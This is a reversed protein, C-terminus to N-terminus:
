ALEEESLHDDDILRYIEKNIERTNAIYDDSMGRAKMEAFWPADNLEAGTVGYGAMLIIFSVKEKSAVIPAIVGGEGHGLMSINEIDIDQRSALYLFAGHADNALDATTSQSVSKFGLSKGVQREDYRLVAFGESNFFDALIKFPKFESVRSDRNQEGFGSVLIIAKHKKTQREPFSLTGALKVDGNRFVIEEERYTQANASTIICLFWFCYKMDFSYNWCFSVANLKILTWENIQSVTM